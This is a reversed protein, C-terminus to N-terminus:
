EAFHLDQRKQPAFIPTCLKRERTKGRKNPGDQTNSKLGAAAMAHGVDLVAPEAPACERIASVLCCLCSM